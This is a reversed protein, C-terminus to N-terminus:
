IDSRLRCPCLRSLGTERRAAVNPDSRRSKMLRMSPPPLLVFRAFYLLSRKFLEFPPCEGLAAGCSKSHSIIKLFLKGCIVDLDNQLHEIHHVFILFCTELATQVRWRKVRCQYFILLIIRCRRINVFCLWKHTSANHM